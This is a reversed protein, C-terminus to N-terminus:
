SGVAQRQRALLQVLARKNVERIYVLRKAVNGFAEVFNREFMTFVPPMSRWSEYRARLRENNTHALDGNMFTDIIEGNTYQKEVTNNKATIPVLPPGALLQNIEGRIKAIEEILAADIPLRPYMTALNRLSCPERDQIFFRYSLTFADIAEQDPGERLITPPNGKSWSLTWKSEGAVLSKIFRSNELKQVKENFLRLAAIEKSFDAM